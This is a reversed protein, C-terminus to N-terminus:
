ENRGAAKQVQMGEFNNDEEEDYFYEGTESDILKSGSKVAISAQLLDSRQIGGGVSVQRSCQFSHPSWFGHSGQILLLSTFVQIIM